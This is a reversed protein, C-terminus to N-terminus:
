RPIHLMVTPHDAYVILYTVYDTLMFSMGREPRPEAAPLTRPRGRWECLFEQEGASRCWLCCM